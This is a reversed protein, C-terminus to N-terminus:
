MYNSNWKNMAVFERHTYWAFLALLALIVAFPRVWGRGTAATEKTFAGLRYKARAEVQMVRADVLPQSVKTLREEIEDLRGEVLGLAADSLRAELEVIRWQDDAARKEVRGLMAEIAQKVEFLSHELQHAIMLARDPPGEWDPSTAEAAELAETYLNFAMVEFRSQKAGTRAVIGAAAHRRWADAKPPIISPLRGSSVCTSWNQTNRPDVQLIVRGKDYSLRLTSYLSPQFDDRAEDYYLPKLCSGLEEPELGGNNAYLAIKQADKLADGAADAHEATLVVALGQFRATVGFFDAAAAAADGDSLVTPTADNVVLWALSEGAERHNLGSMRFRTDFSFADNGGNGGLDAPLKTWAAGTDGPQPETLRVSGMFVRARGATRWGDMRRMGTKPDFSAFPAAFTAHPVPDAAASRLLLAM